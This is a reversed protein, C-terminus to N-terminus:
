ESQISWCRARCTGYDAVQKRPKTSALNRDTGLCYRVALWMGSLGGGPSHWVPRRHGSLGSALWMCRQSCAAKAQETGVQWILICILGEDSWRAPPLSFYQIGLCTVDAVRDVQVLVVADGMTMTVPKQRKSAELVQSIRRWATSPGSVLREM